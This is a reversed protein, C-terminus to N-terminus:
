QDKNGSSNCYCHHPFTVAENTKSATIKFRASADVKTKAEDRSAACVVASTKGFPRPPEWGRRTYRVIWHCTSLLQGAREFTAEVKYVRVSKDTM